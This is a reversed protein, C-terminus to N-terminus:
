GFLQEGSDWKLYQLIFRYVLFSGLSTYVFAVVAAFSFYCLDIVRNRVDMQTMSEV